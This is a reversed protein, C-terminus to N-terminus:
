LHTEIYDAITAFSDGGDNMASLNRMQDYNLGVAAIAWESPPMDIYKGCLNGFDFAQVNKQELVIDDTDGSREHPVNMIECLVGLCCQGEDSQLVSSTQKRGPERLAKLWKEKVEPKMKTPADLNFAETTNEFADSM